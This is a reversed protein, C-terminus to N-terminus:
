PNRMVFVVDLDFNQFLPEVKAQKFVENQRALVEKVRGMVLGRPLKGEIGESYVLDGVEISEQHLIKDMLVESGFQGQLIGKARGENGQSFVAVKSDPDEVLLIRSSKPSVAKVIGIYNDKYVVAEDVAVGDDSGRDITLYRGGSIVRAPLLDFTQPNLQNYTDVINETESLKRRLDANETLLTAMQVRLAKNEKAAMRALFIFRFQNSVSVGSRYLGYEVPLTLNQLLSKPFRLLNFSDATM